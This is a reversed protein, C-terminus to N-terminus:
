ERLRRALETVIASALENPDVAKGTLPPLVGVLAQALATVDVQDGEVAAHIAKLTGNQQVVLDYTRQLLTLPNVYKPDLKYYLLAQQVLVILAEEALRAAKKETFSQSTNKM